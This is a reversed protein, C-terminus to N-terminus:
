KFSTKSDETVNGLVLDDNEQSRGSLSYNDSKVKKIKLRILRKLNQLLEILLIKLHVVIDVYNESVNKM